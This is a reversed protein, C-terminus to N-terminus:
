LRSFDCIFNFKVFLLRYSDELLFFLLYILSLALVLIWLFSCLKVILPSIEYLLSLELFFHISWSVRNVIGNVLFLIECHLSETEKKMMQGTGQIPIWALNEALFDSHYNLISLLGFSLHLIFSRHAALLKFGMITKIGM